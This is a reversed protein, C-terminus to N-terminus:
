RENRAGRREYVLVNEQQKAPIRLDELTYESVDKAELEVNSVLSDVMSLIDTNSASITDQYILELSNKVVELHMELEKKREGTRNIKALRAKMLNINTQLSSRLGSSTENQLAKTYKAIDEELTKLTARSFNNSELYYHEQLLQAFRYRFESLREVLSQTQSRKTIKKCLSRINDLHYRHDSDLNSYIEDEAELLEGETQRQTTAALFRKGSETNAFLFVGAELAALLYVWGWFGGFALMLFVITAVAYLNWNHKFAEKIYNIERM